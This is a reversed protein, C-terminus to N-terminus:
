KVERMNFPFLLVSGLVEGAEQIVEDDEEYYWNIEILGGKKVIEQLNKLIHFLWKSSGTNIYEFKFDIILTKNFQYFYYQIKEELLKYFEVPDPMRSQGSVEMKKLREKIEIVPIEKTMSKTKNGTEFWGM